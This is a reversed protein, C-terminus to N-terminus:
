SWFNSMNYNSPPQFIGGEFFGFINPMLEYDFLYEKRCIRCSFVGLKEDIIKLTTYFEITLEFFVEYKISKLQLWGMRACLNDIFEKMELEVLLEDDFYKPM